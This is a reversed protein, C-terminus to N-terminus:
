DSTCTGTPNCTGNMMDGDEDCPTNNADFALCDDNMESCSDDCSPGVNHGPCPNGTGVCAGMNNCADTNTCFFGDNCSSGMPDNATCTDNGENCSESCDNDGDGVNALCPDGSHNSCNGNNCTDTGNCFTSDNCSSGNPDNATCTDNGENCSESCDSDNDGVNAACPDGSHNSCSGNNCTDTGNCFANDNCGSGNPDNGSCDDAGENCTESCDGDGDAGPCPDGAHVSCSGSGDCTDTGNCFTADDCATGAADNNCTGEMGPLNCSQCSPCSASGCCVGDVCNGSTCENGGGCTLGDDKKVTCVGPGTDCWQTAADCNGDITCPACTTGNCFGSQCDDGMLCGQNNMCGPCDDGGCDIDTEGQGPDAVGNQCHEAICVNGMCVPTPEQCDAPVNCEVCNGIGDCVKAGMPGDDCSVSTPEVLTTCQGSADCGPTACDTDDGPCLLPDCQGGEGGMGTSTSSTTTTTTAGGGGGAGGRFQEFDQLCAGLFLLSSAFAFSLAQRAM